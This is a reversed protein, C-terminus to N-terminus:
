TKTKAEKSVSGRSQSQSSPRPASRPRSSNRLPPPTINMGSDGQSTGASAQLSRGDRTRAAQRFQDLYWAGGREGPTLRMWVGGHRTWAGGEPIPQDGTLTRWSDSIKVIAEGPLPNRFNPVNRNSVLIWAGLPSVKSFPPLPKWAGIASVPTDLQRWGQANVRVWYGRRDGEFM